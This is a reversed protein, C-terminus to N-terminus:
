FERVAYVGSDIHAFHLMRLDSAFYNIVVGCYIDKTLVFYWIGFVPGNGAQSIVATTNPDISPLVNAVFKEIADVGHGTSIGANRAADTFSMTSTGLKKPVFYSDPHGNLQTSNTAVDAQKAKAVTKDKDATNDVNGLGVDNKALTVAGTRSNVSTVGSRADVEAKTYAGIGDPTITVAGTQGNVTQVYADTPVAQGADDFGVVQGKSGTLTEQVTVAGTQGNVSVVQAGALCDWKGEATYYVNTGAPYAHGAGENFNGTTTFADSINYMYGAQKAQSELDAFAVTGMPLLAGGLGQSIRKAQDYYYRANDVDENERTQTGGVAYSQATKASTESATESKSANTESAKAATASNKANAESTAAAAESSAAAAQSAAAKEESEKASEMSKAAETESTSAASASNAANTESKAAAEQSAKAANESEKAAEASAQADTRAQEIYDYDIQITDAYGKARDADAKASAAADVATNVYAEATKEGFARFQAGTMKHAENNQSVPILTDDYIEPIEPLDQIHKEEVAPLEPISKDAM